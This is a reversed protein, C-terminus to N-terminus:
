RSPSSRGHRDLPIHAVKQRALHAHARLPFRNTVVHRAEDHLELDPVISIPLWNASIVVRMPMGM